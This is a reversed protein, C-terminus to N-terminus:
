FFEKEFNRRMLYKVPLYSALFSLGSVLLLILVGDKITLQIPFPEGGSNPMQLVEGGLQVFCIIYGLLLGFIVGKFSIMMGEYFFIKFITNKDAGFSIMTKVNDMKEIFLMTLSAVLNFAALIFIFVLIFLVIIKETKSTKFILENKEYNTKVSFDKGLFTAINKKVTENNYKEKSEVLLSTIDDQYNLLERSLRLPVIVYEANVEKNFNMRASLKVIRTTFPNSGLRVKADRKPAYLILNEYGTKPIYGGLNDLLTAGVLALDEGNENLTPFGDVIHDKMKSMELFVSEVGILHANVWKKEKKLVVVEEVARSVNKVGEVALLKDFDIQYENFTKGNASRVVVDSDFDSYLKEVMSEIGNFASLLIVLAATTVAIGVV